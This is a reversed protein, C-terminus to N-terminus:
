ACSLVLVHKHRSSVGRSLHVGTSDMLQCHEHCVACPIFDGMAPSFSPCCFVAKLFRDALSFLHPREKARCKYLYVCSYKAVGLPSAWLLIKSFLLPLLGRSVTLRRVLAIHQGSRSSGPTHPTLRPRPEAGSSGWVVRTGLGTSHARGQRSSLMRAAMLTESGAAAPLSPRAAVPSSVQHGSRTRQSLRYITAM